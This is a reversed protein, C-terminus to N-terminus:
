IDFFVSVGDTTNKINIGSEVLKLLSQCVTLGLGTGTTHNMINEDLYFPKFIKETVKESISPGQNTIQFRIKQSPLKLVDFTIAQKATGFRNANQLLRILVQGLVLDSTTVQEIASSVAITQAKNELAGQLQMLIPDIIKKLNFSSEEIILQQTEAKMILLVDDVLAKLRATSQQIRLLYKEQDTDLSTESLLAGFNLISTLPTKLEHNILIMFHSKAQDLTQLEELAKALEKNKQKLEQSIVYREVARDVTLGLDIPDWPKTLYRYIQGQNVAAIVSELDTYGTLLIRVTEPHSTLTQELLEVGTMEPMRQDTIILALPEQNTKLWKLAEQGSTAKIVTYKKRFLRELADVNDVEDDICLIRHKGM